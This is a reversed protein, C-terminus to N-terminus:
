HPGSESWGLIGTDQTQLYGNTHDVMSTGVQTPVFGSRDGRPHSAVGKLEGTKPNFIARVCDPIVQEPYRMALLCLSEVGLPTRGM